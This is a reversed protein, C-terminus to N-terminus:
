QEDVSEGLILRKREGRISEGDDEAAVARSLRAVCAEDLCQYARPVSGPDQGIDEPLVRCIRGGLEDVFDAPPLDRLLVRAGFGHGIEQLHPEEVLVAAVLVQRLRRDDVIAGRRQCQKVAEDLDAVARAGLKVRSDGNVAALTQRQVQRRLGGGAGEHSV